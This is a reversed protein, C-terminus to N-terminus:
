EAMLSFLSEISIDHEDEPYWIPFINAHALEKKRAIRDDGERLELFAYHRPLNSSGHEKVMEVMSQITRDVNLSCGLFILSQGFLIRNFFDKVDSNNAYALDYENKLLVREGVFECSGHLKLLLRSGTAILRTVEKLTKGSRVLDFNQNADGFVQEILGDFNTTVISSKPFLRPLYHIAGSVEKESKFVSELLENFGAATMDDHLEQAAEEYMGDGLLKKLVEETVHSENCADYLFKTWSPYGSPMSMGAGIFPMLKGNDFTRRLQEFRNANDYCGLIEKATEVLRESRQTSWDEFSVEYSRPELEGLIRSRQFQLGIIEVDGDDNLEDDYLSKLFKM